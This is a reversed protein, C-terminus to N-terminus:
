FLLQVLPSNAAIEEGAMQAVKAAADIGGGGGGGGAAAGAADAGPGASPPGTMLEPTPATPNALPAVPKPQMPQIGAPQMPQMPQPQMPAIQQQQAANPDTYGGPQMVRKARQAATKINPDNSNLGREICKGTIRGGCFTTFSGKSARRMKKRTDKLYRKNAMM